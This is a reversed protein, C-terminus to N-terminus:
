LLVPFYFLVGRSILFAMMNSNQDQSAYPWLRLLAVKQFWAEREGKRQTHRDRLPYCQEEVYLM